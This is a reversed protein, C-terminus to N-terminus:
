QVRFERLEGGGHELRDTTHVADRIGEVLADLPIHLQAGLHPLDTLQFVAYRHRIM